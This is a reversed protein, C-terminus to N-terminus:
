KRTGLKNLDFGSLPSDILGSRFYAEFAGHKAKLNEVFEEPKDFGTAPLIRELFRASEARVIYGPPHDLWVSARPCWVNHLYNISQEHCVTRMFLFYDAELFEKHSILESIESNTFREKIMDAMISIRQLNLRSNRNEDLSAVYSSLRVFSVYRSTHPKEVFLDEDLLEGLLSWQDYRLISAILCVFVEYGLFKFGDFDTRRYSGSFGDPVDYLKLMNGFYRYTTQLADANEAKAAILAAEAFRYSLPLGREIQEVIAEDYEAHQTFDPKTATVDALLNDLFDRYVPSIPQKAEKIEYQM